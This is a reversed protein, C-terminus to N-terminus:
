PRGHLTQVLWSRVSGSAAYAAGAGLALVVLV